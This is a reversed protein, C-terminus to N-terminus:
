KSANKIWLRLVTALTIEAIIAAIVATLTKSIAGLIGFVLLGGLFDTLLEHKAFWQKLQLPLKSFTMVVSIATLGGLFIGNLM